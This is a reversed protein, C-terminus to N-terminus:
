QHPVQPNNTPNNVYEFRPVVKGEIELHEMFMNLPRCWLQGNPYHDTAYLSKYIVVAEQTETHQAIGIVEYLNNKYHKYIGLKLTNMLNELLLLSLKIHNLTYWGKISKSCILESM